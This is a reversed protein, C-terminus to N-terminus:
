RVPCCPPGPADARVMAYDTLLDSIRNGESTDFEYVPGSGGVPAPADPPVLTMRRPRARWPPRSDVGKKVEFYFNTDPKFGWRYIESLKFQLYPSKRGVKMIQIGKSSVALLIQKPLKNFDKQQLRSHTAAPEFSRAPGRM